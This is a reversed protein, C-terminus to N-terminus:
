LIFYRIKSTFSRGPKQLSFNDYLPKDLLNRCEVTFQFKNKGGLTYTLSLDLSLQEPVQLKDSGLSPWYLYFDHVYLLNYGIALNNGAAFLDQLTYAADANGFLYPMNPIRDRYVVSEVSQGEVFRTNNRLDQYSANIGATFRDSYQYRLEAEAGTNTVNFLNEMVQMAQNNNLRPRIFDKSDRYFGNGSIELRHEPALNRWYSFGINYNYSKEPELENNGQLNIMDGFLEEPEPLRYSKEFSAKIQLNDNLFYSGTWGYGLYQFSARENRYALDGYEGSPNYALAFRNIQTYHKVFASTSFRDDWQYQYGIGAINKLTKRPQEYSDQDPFLPDKGQRDFSNVVNSLTLQHHNAWQWNLTSTAVANNNKYKYLSYSREGGPTDYAKYQRFWNYRRNVTDINQEAGLNYNANVTLDLGKTFLDKKAYKFTPMIINGRRHWDGFVTVLRAGTQIEAYNQGLTIGLLLKDAYPKGQVGFQSVLTENHYTDHFRRVRQNPYYQGTHIDAVDVDVWYNNDSYNQFLNFQATLGSPSVYAANIATRHTNFSGYSYSVDLYSKQSANTIINVAGGLADAGLGVPVVGKYVEIREAINIPINNLQFSSGFDEMPIGDIFFKVQKGTFGNLSFSMRSGVGGSERIRIGSVRDLAHGIDLSTHHLKKADVVNVNYAKERILRNESKGTVTVAELDQTAEKLVIALSAGPKQLILDQQQTQFGLFSFILTYSQGRPGNIRFNGKEDTLTAQDLPQIKILVGPLSEGAVNTVTGQILATEQAFTKWSSIGY